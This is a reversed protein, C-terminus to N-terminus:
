GDVARPMPGPSRRLTLTGVAVGALVLGVGGIQFPSPAEGLLAGALVVAAVPQSLLILSAVVAPLHPLSAAILLGGAVQASLALLVLWAHAPWTPLLALDGLLVGGVIGGVVTAATADRVPGVFRGPLRARRLLLLYGAYAFATVTGYTVGLGPDRGYAGGGILGSILIVGIVALPAGLLVRGSPREGLFLWAVIGVVIVQLNGMVTALGAGMEGIALHFTTLDLAFFLGAGIALLRLRIAPPGLRREEPLALVILIPLAYLARFVTATSPSAASLRVLIGSFALCGAGAIALLRPRALLAALWREWVAGPSAIL